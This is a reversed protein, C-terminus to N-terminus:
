SSRSLAASTSRTCFFRSAAGSFTWTSVRPDREIALGSDCLGVLGHLENEGVPLSLGNADLVPRFCPRHPQQSIDTEQENSAVGRLLALSRPHRDTIGNAYIRAGRIEFAVGSDHM